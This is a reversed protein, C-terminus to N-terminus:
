RQRADLRSCQVFFDGSSATTTDGEQVFTAEHELRHNTEGPGGSAVCRNLIAPVAAIVDRRNRGDADRRMAPSQTRVKGKAIAVGVRRLHLGEHGVQQPCTGCPSM